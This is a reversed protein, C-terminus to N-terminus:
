HGGAEPLGLGERCIRVAGADPRCRLEGVPVREVIETLTGCLSDYLERDSSVASCSPLVAAFAEVDEKPLFANVGAQRLKVIGGLRCSENRYCPTKGSWPTGFVRVQGDVIRIAPNDDNLLAAGPVNELWLSAHTSKGTGSRGLFIWGAGDATVASAHISIGGHLLVSQSWVIRLMSTLVIGARPDNPNVGARCESFKRDSKLVYAEFAGPYAVELVYGGGGESLTVEGMDNEDEAVKRCGEPQKLPETRLTLRFIAPRGDGDSGTNDLRFQGFAPLLRDLDFEDPASVEFICDAVRYRYTRDTGPM